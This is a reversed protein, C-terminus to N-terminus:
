ADTQESVAKIGRALSNPVEKIGVALKTAVGNIAGAIQAILVEKSPLDGIAKLEDSSLLRGELLGGRLETKKTDKQFAQYAKIASGPDDKVLVFANTGKLLETLPQWDDADAIARRMLTNKTVKCVSNSAELRNRLDTIEAVTLGQYDVVFAMQAEDVLGKLETVIDQKNALTRGM